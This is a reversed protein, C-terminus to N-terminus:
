TTNENHTNSKVAFINASINALSLIGITKHSNHYSDM